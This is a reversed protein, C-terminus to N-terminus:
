LLPDSGEFLESIFNDPSDLVKMVGSAVSALDTNFDDAKDEDPSLGINYLLTSAVINKARDITTKEDEGENKFIFRAETRVPVKRRRSYGDVDFLLYHLNCSMMVGNGHPRWSYNFRYGGQTAFEKLRDIPNNETLNISHKRSEENSRQYKGFM